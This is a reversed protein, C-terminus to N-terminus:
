VSATSFIISSRSTIVVYIAAAARAADLAVTMRASLRPKSM